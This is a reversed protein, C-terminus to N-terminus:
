RGVGIKVSTDVVVEQPADRSVSLRITGDQGVSETDITFGQKKAETKAKHFAYRQIIKQQLVEQKENTEEEIAWWDGVLSYTNDANRRVGVDYNSTMHICIEAQHQAGRWGKVYVLQGETAEEFALGLDELANKLCVLDVIKTEIETFHSM